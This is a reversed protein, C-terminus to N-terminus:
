AKSAKSNKSAKPNKSAKKPRTPGGKRPVLRPRPQHWIAPGPPAPPNARRLGLEAFLEAKREETVRAPYLGAQEVHLINMTFTHPPGKIEPPTKGIWNNLFQRSNCFPCHAFHTTMGKPSQGRSIELAVKEPHADGNLNCVVFVGTPGLPKGANPDPKRKKTM